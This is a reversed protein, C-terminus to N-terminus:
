RLMLLRGAWGNPRTFRKAEMGFICLIIRGTRPFALIKGDRAEIRYVIGRTSRAMGPGKSLLLDYVASFTPSM